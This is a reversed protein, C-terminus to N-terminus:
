DAGDLNLFEVTGTIEFVRRVTGHAGMVRLTTGAKRCRDAAFLLARIGSSDCYRLETLDILIM